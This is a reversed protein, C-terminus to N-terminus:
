VILQVQDGWAMGEGPSHQAPVPRKQSTEPLVVADTQQSPGATDTRPIDSYVSYSQQMVPASMQPASLKRLATNTSFGPSPPLSRQGPAVSVVPLLPELPSMQPTSQLSSRRYADNPPPLPMTPALQPPVPTYGEVPYGNNAYIAGTHLTTPRRAPQMMQQIYTAPIANAVQQQLNAGQQQYAGQHISQTPTPAAGPAPYSHAVQFVPPECRQPMSAVYTMPQAVMMQQPPPATVSEAVYTNVPRVPTVSTSAVGSVVEGKLPPVPGSSVTMMPSFMLRQIRAEAAVPSPIRMPPPVIVAAALRGSSHHSMNSSSRAVPQQINYAPAVAAATAPPKTERVDAFAFLSSLRVLM